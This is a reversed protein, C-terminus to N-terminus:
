CDSLARLARCIEDLQEVDLKGVRGALRSVNLPQLIDFNAVCPSALGNEHGLRIETPIGRITRTIPAVLVQNLVPIAENRTVILVPRRKDQAEAWWVDGQHIM